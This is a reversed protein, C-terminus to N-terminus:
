RHRPRHRREHEHWYRRYWDYDHHRHTRYVPRHSHYRLEWRYIDYLQWWDLVHNSRLSTQRYWLRFGDHRRLWLPMAASRHVTVSYHRSEAVRDHAGAVPAAAVISASTVILIATLRKM